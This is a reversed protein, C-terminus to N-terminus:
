YATQQGGIGHLFFGVAHQMSYGSTASAVFFSCKSPGCHNWLGFWDTLLKFFVSTHLCQFTCFCYEAKDFRKYMRDCIGCSHEQAKWLVLQTCIQEIVHKFLHFMDRVARKKSKRLSEKSLLWHLFFKFLARASISWKNLRGMPSELFRVEGLKSGTRSSEPDLACLFCRQIITLLAQRASNFAAKFSATLTHCSRIVCCEASVCHSASQSSQYIINICGVSSAKWHGLSKPDSLDIWLVYLAGRLYESM